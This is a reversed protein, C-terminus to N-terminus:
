LLRLSFEADFESVKIFEIPQFLKQLVQDFHNSLLSIRKVSPIGHATSVLHNYGM